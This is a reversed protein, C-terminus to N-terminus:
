FLRKLIQDEKLSSEKPGPGSRLIQDINIVNSKEFENAINFVQRFDDEDDILFSLDLQSHKPFEFNEFELFDGSM